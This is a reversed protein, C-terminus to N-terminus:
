LTHPLCQVRRRTCRTEDRQTGRTALSPERRVSEIGVRRTAPRPESLIPEHRQTSAPCRAKQACAPTTRRPYSPEHRCGPPQPRRPRCWAAAKRPTHTHTHTHTHAHTRAHAHAHKRARTQTRTNAHKDVHTGTRTPAGEAHKHQGEHTCTYSLMTKGRHVCATTQRTLQDSVPLTRATDQPSPLTVRQFSPRSPWHLSISDM